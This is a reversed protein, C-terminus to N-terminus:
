RASSGAPDRPYPLGACTCRDSSCGRGTYHYHYDEHRVGNNRFTLAVKRRGLLLWLRGNGNEGLELRRRIHREFAENSVLISGGLNRRDVKRGKSSSLACPLRWLKVGDRRDRSPVLGLKLSEFLPFSGRSLARSLAGVGLGEGGRLRPPLPIWACCKRGFESDSPANKMRWAEFSTARQWPLRPARPCHICPRTPRRPAGM